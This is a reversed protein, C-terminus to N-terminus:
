RYPHPTLKIIALGEPSKEPPVPVLFLEMYQRQYHPKEGGIFTIIVPIEVRFVQRGGVSALDILQAPELPTLVVVQRQSRVTELLNTREMSATFDNWAAPTFYVSNVAMRQEYNRFGFQFIDIVARESWETIKEVTLAPTGLVPLRKPGEQTVVYYQPAELTRGSFWIFVAAGVCLLAGLIIAGIAGMSKDFGPGAPRGLAKDLGHDFLAAISKFMGFM